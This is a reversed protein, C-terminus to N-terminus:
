ETQDVCTCVQHAILRLPLYRGGIVVDRVSSFNIRLLRRAYNVYNDVKFNYTTDAIICHFRLPVYQGSTLLPSTLLISRM